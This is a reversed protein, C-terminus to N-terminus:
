DRGSGSLCLLQLFGFNGNEDEQFERSTRKKDLSGACVIFRLYARDGYKCALDVIAINLRADLDFAMGRAWDFSIAIKLPCINKEYMDNQFRTSM